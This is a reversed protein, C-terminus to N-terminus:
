VATVYPLVSYFLTAYTCYWHTRRSRVHPLHDREELRLSQFGRLVPWHECGGCAWSSCLWSSYSVFLHTPNPQTPNTQFPNSQSPIPHSSTKMIVTGANIMHRLSSLDLAQNSRKSQMNRSQALHKRATLAYAFNPAQVHTAKYKSMATVWVTPDRIFAIPSLYYGCGGCYLAGLYSGILGMDHYQPLWSVVVTDDFANLGSIILDLNNTLNDQTIVVGKPNSTSGSTYQLFAIDCSSPPPSSSPSSLSEYQKYVSKHQEKHQEKYQERHLQDPAPLLLLLLLSDTVIWQLDKPWSSFSYCVVCVHFLFSIHWTIDIRHKIM